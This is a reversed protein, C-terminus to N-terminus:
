SHTAIWVEMIKGTGVVGKLAALGKIDSQTVLQKRRRKKPYVWKYEGCVKKYVPSAGGHNCAGPAAAGAPIVQQPVSTAPANPTLAQYVAGAPSSGFPVGGPLVGGLSTDVADYIDSLVGMTDTEEEFDTTIPGPVPPPIVPVPTTAPAAPVQSVHQVAVGQGQLSHYDFWNDVIQLPLGGPNSPQDRRDIAPPIDSTTSATTSPAMEPLLVGPGAVGVIQPVGVSVHSRLRAGLIRGYVWDRFRGTNFSPGEVYWPPVLDRESLIASM